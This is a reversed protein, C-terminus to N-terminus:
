TRGGQLHHLWALTALRWDPSAIRAAEEEARAWHRDLRWRNVRWMAAATNWLFPNRPYGRPAEDAGRDLLRHLEEDFSEWHAVIPSAEVEGDAYYDLARSPAPGIKSILSTYLHFNVSVQYYRGVPVEVGAALYEQLVSFHVANAGYAGWVLDNSRCFVAIDLAGGVIRPVLTLNCPVDRYSQGADSTPDWMQVVVRRDQPNDRLQRIVQLLQDMKLGTGSTDFVANEDKHFWHRWRKGYAGWQVVSPEDPGWGRPEDGFRESYDRVFQDLWEADWRGDLMWLAEMLHFVPNAVRQDVTFLVREQPREYVTTVPHPAAIVEGARSPLVEGVEDLLRRGLYYAECVNRAEVVRM